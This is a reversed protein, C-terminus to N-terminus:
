EEMDVESESGTESGNESGDKDSEGSESADTGNGDSENSGDDSESEDDSGSGDSEDDSKCESYILMITDMQEVDFMTNCSTVDSHFADFDTLGAALANKWRM